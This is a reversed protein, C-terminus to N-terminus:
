NTISKYADYLADGTGKQIDTIGGSIYDTVSKTANTIPNTVNDRITNGLLQGSLLEYRENAEKIARERNASRIQNAQETEEKRIQAELAKQTEEKETVAKKEAAQLKSQIEEEKVFDQIAKDAEEQTMTGAVVKDMIDKQEQAKDVNKQANDVEKQADKIQDNAVKIADQQKALSSDLAKIEEETMNMEAMSRSAETENSIVELNKHATNRNEQAANLADGAASVQNLCADDTRSACEKQVKDYAAQAKALDSEATNLDEQAQNQQKQLEAYKEFEDRSLQADVLNSQAEDLKAKAAAKEEPTTASDYAKQAEAVAGEAASVKNEQALLQKDLQSALENNAATKSANAKNTASTLANQKDELVEQTAELSSVAHGALAKAYTSTDDFTRQYIGSYERDVINDGKTSDVQDLATWFEGSRMNALAEAKSVASSKKAQESKLQNAQAQSNASSQKNVTDTYNQYAADENKQTNEVDQILKDNAKKQEKASQQAQQCSMSSSGENACIADATAQAQATQEQLNQKAQELQADTISAAKNENILNNLKDKEYQVTEEEGKLAAQNKQEQEQAYARAEACASSGENGQCAKEANAWNEANEEAVQQKFNELNQEEQAIKNRYDTVAQTETAEIGAADLLAQKSSGSEALAENFKEEAALSDLTTTKAENLEREAAAIEAANGSQQAKALAQEKEALFKQDQLAKEINNSYEEANYNAKADAVAQDLAAQDAAKSAQYAKEAEKQKKAIKKAAEAQNKYKTEVQDRIAQERAATASETTNAAAADAAAKVENYKTAQQQAQKLNAEAAKTNAAAAAEAETRSTLIYWDDKKAQENAKAQEVASQAAAVKVAHNLAYDDMGTATKATEVNKAMEDVKAQAKSEAEERDSTTWYISDKADQLEQQAAEYDAQAKMYDQVATNTQGFVVTPMMALILGIAIGSLLQKRMVEERNM